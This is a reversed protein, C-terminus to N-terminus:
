GVVGEVDEGVGDVVGEGAPVAVVEVLEGEREVAAGDGFVAEAVVDVRCLDEVGVGDGEPLDQLGAVLEAVHEVEAVVPAVPARDVGLREVRRLM